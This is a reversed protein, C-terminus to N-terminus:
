VLEVGKTGSTLGGSVVWCLLCMMMMMMVQGHMVLHSTATPPPKPSGGRATNYTLSGVRLLEGEVVAVRRECEAVSPAQWRPPFLFM